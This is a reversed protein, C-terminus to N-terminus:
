AAAEPGSTGIRIFLTGALHRLKLFNLRPVKGGAMMQVLAISLPDCSLSERHPFDITM